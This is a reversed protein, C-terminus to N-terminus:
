IRQRRETDPQRRRKSGVRRRRQDRRQHRDFRPRQGDVRDHGNWDLVGASIALSGGSGANNVIVLDKGTAGQITGGTGGSITQPSVVIPTLLIGDNDTLTFGGLGVNSTLTSASNFRLSNITLNTGLSGSYSSTNSINQGATWSGPNSQVTYSATPLAEIGSSSTIAWGTGGFTIGPGLLGGSDNSSTTTVKANSLTFNLTGGPNRTLTGLAGYLKFTGGGETFSIASAGPNVTM